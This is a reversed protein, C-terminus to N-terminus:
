AIFPLTKAAFFPRELYLHLLRISHKPSCFNPINVCTDQNCREHIIEKKNEGYDGRYKRYLTAEYVYEM